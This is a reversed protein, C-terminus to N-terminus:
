SVLSINNSSVFCFSWVEYSVDKQKQQNWDIEQFLEECTMPVLGKFVVYFCLASATVRAMVHCRMFEQIMKHILPGQLIKVCSVKFIQSQFFVRNISLLLLCVNVIGDESFLSM